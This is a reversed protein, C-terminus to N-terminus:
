GEKLGAADALEQSTMPKDHHDVLVAFLGSKDGLAISLGTFGGSIFGFLRSSFDEATENAYKDAMTLNTGTITFSIRNQITTSRILEWYLSFQASKSLLM